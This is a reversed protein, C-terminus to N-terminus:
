ARRRRTAALGLLSLGVLALSAPEPVASVQVNRLVFNGDITGNGNGAADAAALMGGFGLGYFWNATEIVEFVAGGQYITGTIALSGAGTPDVFVNGFMDNIMDFIADTARGDYNLTFGLGSAVEAGLDGATSPNPDSFGFTLSPAILGTTSLAGTFIGLPNNLTGAFEPTGDENLDFSGFGQVSVTYNGAPMNNMTVSGTLDRYTITYVNPTADAFGSVAVSGTLSPTTLVVAANAAVSAGALVATAIWRNLQKM